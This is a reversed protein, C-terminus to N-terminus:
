RTSSPTGHGSRPHRAIHAPMPMQLLNPSPPRSTINEYTPPVDTPASRVPTKIATTYSTLRELRPMDYSPDSLENDNEDQHTQGHGHGHGHNHGNGNALAYLRSNSAGGSRLGGSHSPPSSRRNFFGSNDRRLTPEVPTAENDQIHTTGGSGHREFMPRNDAAETRLQLNTLRNHLALPHAADGLGALNESSGSRSFSGPAFPTHMGSVLGPTQFGTPDIDDYLRDLRHNEYLPPATQM